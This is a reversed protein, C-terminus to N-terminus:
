RASYDEKSRELQSFCKVLVHKAASQPHCADYMGLLARFIDRLTATSPPLGRWETARSSEICAVLLPLSEAISEVSPLLFQSSSVIAKTCQELKCFFDCVSLFGKLLDPNPGPSSSSCHPYLLHLVIECVTFNMMFINFQTNMLRADLFPFYVVIHKLINASHLESFSRLLSQSEVTELVHADSELEDRCAAVKLLLLLIRLVVDMILVTNTKMSGALEVSLLHSPSCEVWCELLLPLLTQVVDVLSEREPFAYKPLSRGRQASPSTQSLFATRPTRLGFQRVVAVQPVSQAFSCSADYVARLDGSAEEVVRAQKVDVTLAFRQGQTHPGPEACRAQEKMHVLIAQFYHMLQDLISFRSSQRSLMSSPNSSLAARNADSKLRTANKGSAQVSDQRSLLRIILSLLEQAFSVLLRPFHSLVLDFVKLSDRQIRDDIHTLGCRLHAVLVPFFPSLQKESVNGLLFRLFLLLAHRVSGEIDVIPSLHHILSALNPPLLAPNEQLLDRLGILADRRVASKFHAQQQLLAQLHPM